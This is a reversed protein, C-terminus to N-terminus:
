EHPTPSSALIRRYVASLNVGLDPDASEILEKFGESMMEKTPEAPVLKWGDPVLEAMSVAPAPRTFSKPHYHPGIDGFAIRPAAGCSCPGNREIWEPSCTVWGDPVVKAEAAEARKELARFAEAIALINDPNAVVRFDVMEPTGQGTCNAKNALEVLENLIKM